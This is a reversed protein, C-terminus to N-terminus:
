IYKNNIYINNYTRRQKENNHMRKYQIKFRIEQFQWIVCNSLMLSFCNNGHCPTFTISQCVSSLSVQRPAKNGDPGGQLHASAHAHTWTQTLKGAEKIRRKRQRNTKECVPPQSQVPPEHSILKQPRLTSIFYEGRQCTLQKGLSDLGRSSPIGTWCAAFIFHIQSSPFFFSDGRLCEWVCLATVQQM